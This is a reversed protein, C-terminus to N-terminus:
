RSRAASTVAPAPPTVSTTDLAPKPQPHRMSVGVGLAYLQAGAARVSQAQVASDDGSLVLASHDPTYCFGNDRLVQIVDPREPTEVLLNRDSWIMTVHEPEPASVLRSANHQVQARAKDYRPLLDFAIDEAARYPDDPVAIGDPERVDRFAEPHIGAPAMAGVLFEEGSRPRAIVYLRTGDDRTLVADQGLAYEALAHAVLNLDWVDEARAFQDTYQEHLHHESTWTGPLEEALAASFSALDPIDHPHPM